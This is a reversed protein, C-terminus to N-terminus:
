FARRPNGGKNQVLRALWKKLARAQLCFGDPVHEWWKAFYADAKRWKSYERPLMRWQCGNKLLYLEGCFVEYQDVTRQKM